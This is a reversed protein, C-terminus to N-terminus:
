ASAVDLPRPEVVFSLRESSLQELETLDHACFLRVAAGQERALARLREQNHLRLGRHQEMLKQYLRLGPTCRYDGAMEQRFFYADGCHLLWRTGDRVAVGAHGMTHGPLPVLLLQESLSTLPQVADFDFWREGQPAYLRWRDRTRWQPPRFRARDLWTRQAAAVQAESSLLHVSADPFDDLGGAHDFDLHTLVIHKVDRASFGLGEIQRLATERENLRPRLL